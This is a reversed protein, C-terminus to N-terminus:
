DVVRVLDDFEDSADVDQPLVLRHGCHEALELLEVEDGLLDELEVGDAVCEPVLDM